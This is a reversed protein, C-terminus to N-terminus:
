HNVQQQSLAELGQMKETFLESQHICRPENCVYTPCLAHVLTEHYCKVWFVKLQSM